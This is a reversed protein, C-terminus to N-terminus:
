AAERRQQDRMTIADRAESIDAAIIEPDEGEALAKQYFDIATEYNGLFYHVTGISRLCFGTEAPHDAAIRDYLAIAGDHNKEFLLWDAVSTKACFDSSEMIRAVAERQESAVPSSPASQQLVGSLFANWDATSGARECPRTSQRALMM